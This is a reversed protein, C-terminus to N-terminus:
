PLFPYSKGRPMKKIKEFFDSETIEQPWKPRIAIDWKQKDVATIEIAGLEVLSGIDRGVTKNVNAVHQYHVAARGYFQAWDMKEVDLLIKLLAIQRDKIVRKRSSQLRNFLDYMMNRFLAREMHKRIEFSLRECQLAIGKLGFLLFPTLDHGKSRVDSLTALYSNKEDYYYNSMAIFANNTLGARQLVLAEVARATRGNGDMFPHMGAFHYHLALAQILPDHEGYETQVAAILRTFATKCADGGDCGRHRPLGFTVNYDKRRLVAPECHDDDCGSVIRRHVECILDADIPRDHPLESIWRYASVAAHAQRQSRTLLEETTAGPKLAIDLERDTFDAAEIRSTGAIERKLQIEQLAEVWNRQYPMTILSLVAAKAKVLESAVALLDYRIWNAPLEYRVVKDTLIEDPMVDHSIYSYM